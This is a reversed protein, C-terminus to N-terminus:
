YIRWGRTADIYTLALTINPSDITLNITGGMINSGNRIILTDTFDGVGIFVTDGQSPALPLTIQQGSATVVCHEGASLTKSTATVTIDGSYSGVDSLKRARTM